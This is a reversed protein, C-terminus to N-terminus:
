VIEGGPVVILGTHLLRARTEAAGKLARWALAAPYKAEIWKLAQRDVGDAIAHCHACGFAGELDSTKTSMGGGLARMHCYVVTSEPACTQGPILSAMRLACPQGKAFGRIAESVVKPLMEPNTVHSIDPPYFTM